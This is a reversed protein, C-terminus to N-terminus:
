QGGAGHQESEKTSKVLTKRAITTLNKWQFDDVLVGEKQSAKIVNKLTVHSIHQVNKDLAPFSYPQKSINIELVEKRSTGAFIYLDPLEMNQNMVFLVEQSADGWSARVNFGREVVKRLEGYAFWPMSANHINLHVSAFDKLRQRACYLINPLYFIISQNKVDANMINEATNEMVIDDGSGQANQITQFFYDLGPFGSIELDAVMSAIRDVEGIQNNLAMFCKTTMVILENYTARM